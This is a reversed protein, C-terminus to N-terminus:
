FIVGEFFFSENRLFREVVRFDVGGEIMINIFIIDFFVLRVVENVILGM